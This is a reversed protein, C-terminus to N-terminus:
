NVLAYVILTHNSFGSTCEFPVWHTPLEELHVRGNGAVCGAWWDGAFERTCGVVCMLTVFKGVTMIM